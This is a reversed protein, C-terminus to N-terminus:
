RPKQNQQAMKVASSQLSARPPLNSVTAM